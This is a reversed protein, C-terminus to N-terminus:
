SIFLHYDKESLETIALVTIGEVNPDQEKATQEIASLNPYEELILTMSGFGLSHAFSIYFYRM